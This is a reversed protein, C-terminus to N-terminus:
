YKSTDKAMTCQSNKGDSLRYLTTFSFTEDKNKGIQESVISSWLCMQQDEHNWFYNKLNM